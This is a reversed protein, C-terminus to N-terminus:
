GPTAIVIEPSVAHPAAATLLRQGETVLSASARKSLTSFPTVTLRASAGTRDMKWMAAVFGNVLVSGPILGNATFLRRRIDDGVIRSRDAHSLLINDFEPLFRVPAPTAIEPRPADPLDFYEVGNEDHFVVLDPAMAGVVEGMHTLGSWMQFDPVSAPGFAALYRTALEALSMESGTKPGLWAEISTHRAAGSKGWVGRPPLQVLPIYTRVLQALASQERDPWDQALLVGLEAFTLPQREVAERGRNAVSRFELGRLLKAYSSSRFSQELMPQLLPRLRHADSATVLHITSRMLALRTV